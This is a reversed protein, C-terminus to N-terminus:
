VHARHASFSRFFINSQSLFIVFEAPIRSLRLLIRLRRRPAPKCFEARRREAAACPDIQLEADGGNGTSPDWFVRVSM